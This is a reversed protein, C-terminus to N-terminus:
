KFDNIAQRIVAQQESTGEGTQGLMQEVNFMNLLGGKTSLAQIIYGFMEPDKKLEEDLGSLRLFGGIIPNLKKAGEIMAVNVMEDAKALRRSDGSAVGMMAGMASKRLRGAFDTLFMDFAEPDAILGNANQALAGLHYFSDIADNLIEASDEDRLRADLIASLQTIGSFETRYRFFFFYLFLVFSIVSLIFGAIMIALATELSNIVEL